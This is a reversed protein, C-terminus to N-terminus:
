PVEAVSIRFYGSNGGPPQDLGLIEIEGDDGLLVPTGPMATWDNLLVCTQPTM